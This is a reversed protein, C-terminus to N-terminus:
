QYIGKRATVVIWNLRTQNRECEEWFRSLLKQWENETTVGDYVIAQGIGKLWGSFVQKMLEGSVGAWEGIPVEYRHIKVEKWGLVKQVMLDLRSIAKLSVGSRTFLFKELVRTLLLSFPAEPSFELNTEQFEILQKPKLVRDLEKMALPWSTTPYLLFFNRQFIFHFFESRYPLATFVDGYDIRLSPGAARPFM